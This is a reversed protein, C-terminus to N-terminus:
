KMLKRRYAIAIIQAITAITGIVVITAVVGTLISNNGTAPLTSAGLVTPIIAPAGNGSSYM